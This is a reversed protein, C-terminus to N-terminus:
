DWQSDPSAKTIVVSNHHYQSLEASAKGKVKFKRELNPGIILDSDEDNLVDIVENESNYYTVQFHFNAWPTETNNRITGITSVCTKCGDKTVKFDINSLTLEDGGEYISENKFQAMSDEMAQMTVFWYGGLAILIVAIAQPPILARLISQPRQCKPCWSSNDNINEKCSRCEM